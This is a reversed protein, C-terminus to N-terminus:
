PGALKQLTLRLQNYDVPKVLHASFGAEKSHRIDEEMGYGSLAIGKIAPQTERLRLMLEIGTGDPLGLDSIVMDFLGSQGAAIAAAMSNATVVHHGTRALLRRLVTLTPEHDEVVLLRMGRAEHEISASGDSVAEAFHPTAGAAQERANRL